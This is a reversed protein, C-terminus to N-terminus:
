ENKIKIIRGLRDVKIPICSEKIMEGTWAREAKNNAGLEGSQKPAAPYIPSAVYIPVFFCQNGTSSVVKYIRNKDIIDNLRGTEREESTPLYVLDNPSLWFLIRYGEKEPIPSWDNKEREIVVNLSITDYTRRKEEDNTEYVAFFLNTGKDTEVFKAIKNGKTGVNFKNGLPEYMRVKYIPKHPKNGNLIKINKNMEDVGDPSFAIQPDYGCNKLHALLIKQISTDTIKDIIEEAKSKKGKKEEKREKAKADSKEIDEVVKQDELTKEETKEAEEVTKVKEPKEVGKFISVIDNLFRTAVLPETDDTFYYVKVKAIDLEKWLLANEKFYRVIREKDYRLALLKKVQEKIEKDVILAPNDLALSLRVEKVRRLNVRGYVTDKHMSKRISWNDGKDQKKLVKKGYEDFAQHYNVTKNIVRLNQRFSVIINELCTKVDENFTCWPKKVIWKYNGSQDIKRKDCLMRQLDYRSILARKSASENSLYNVHNRTACAIVIADMAHHRHDIRKKSFGRQLSLPVQTQFVKKGEKNEWEGFQDSETLQNLRQFRPSIIDNWVNNVGWDRKLRDTVSGTCTVVNKSIAEQEYEGHEDKERVINSLLGKIVKSIYRSDNLQREIFQEPIDEMLLKKMKVKSHDYNGKVLEEYGELSLIEVTNGYSLEVKEGHRNKIFEYGLMNGKLRNVESECIVKNSFSDDFYRSQPIIHEIQYDTTFLRGLPIPRGTYPSRFKQDIWLRYRNFDAQTPRKKIDSETFKRLIGKIDEPLEDMKGLATEEYIRLIEQQNPSYPRVDEIGYKPNMFEILLAKIRLNANENALIQETMKKRKDAPNKMDRGLEVHIEDIQGIEKWVDRVIRLTETVVQEVIPNRLSHQKFTKLFGDIDAPCEWKMIDKAESHRNYVVYSALWLPLGKFDDVNSLHIAKERVRDHIKEDFEGSLIKDIRDRTLVDIDAEDWYKGMRMLPLLKKIAKASFSGYDKEFPKINKFAEVFVDEKESIVPVLEEAKAFKRLAKELELPDNVSYLIHWLKLENWKNDLLGKEPISCKDLATLMASKTENCPYKKDKDEMYNWRYEGIRKKLGFPPYKLFAEQDIEKRNNLWDFLNAYSDDTPLFDRTVDVDTCLKERVVMEKKYIRINRVFQWLRFEQFLPHSKAICKISVKKKENTEKDKYIYDEFPCDAILSKKSKLPRQYFIIDEMFLYLSDRNKLMEKRDKNQPYLIDLCEKYLAESRLEAHFEKQKAIIRYLEEKYFSREITRVLKGRIKQDPNCLLTDYIYCGVTKMSSKIDAETKKKVLSWDDEKPARFSRKIEGDKNLKFTGDKNLETTVIFEKVKDVWDLPVNSSRKYIWGNELHVNYWIDNGRKEDTAEVSTVKLAYYEVLKDVHEEEEGRLQYYGRKQNFSLIVWALEEKTIKETLAKKCLYYLTWDYPVKKQNAVLDPQHTSFDSLMNKFSDQFLFEYKGKENRKWAIKSDKSFDMKNLSDSLHLGEVYHDPLFRLTYLVKHLRERRLIAREELRRIGRLRTREATQSKQSGKAFDSLTAADMPIIRSGAKALKWHEIQETTDVEVVAWGISNTGLDLGLIKKM